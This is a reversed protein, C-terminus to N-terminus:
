LGWEYSVELGVVRPESYISSQIYTQNWQNSNSIRYEKDALNSGYLQASFRSGFIADWRVSANWLGYSPLWAGPESEPVTTPSSYQRDTWAYTLSAELTGKAEDIPLLYRGSLSFQHEPTTLFPVCSLELTGRDVEEGTCDRQPTAGAFDLNFEDYEAETYGYSGVFTFRESFRVTLDLEVGVVSAKGANFNAQGIQPAPSPNDPDVFTDPASRQVDTYDTYYLASNLRVPRGAIEFNAKQGLEYNTVFESDFTFHAPNVAITSIGGTKYGRSVKGYVLHNGFQYDLGATWTTASDKFEADDFSSGGIPQGSSRLQFSASGTTKDRTRRVGLTLSLGALPRYLHGLDYTGQAFPAFSELTQEYGANADIFLLSKGIILGESETKEYYGGIVFSLAQDFALGQLQLEETITHLDAEKVTEPNIFENFAARSGDLDWRFSHDMTSYSAINILTLNDTLEFSFKDLVTISELIDNPDGSLQVRRNGRAAQEDLIDQGCNESPAFQNILLCGPQAVQTLDVGPIIQTLGGAGIAGPIARNFGERNIREIVTGTGHSDSDSYNAMLYNEIRGTPRWLLGLRAVLYSEDDYDKGSVVDETFGDRKSVKGGVRALLTDSVLPVNLVAEYTEGSLSEGGRGELSVAGARLSVSFRDEPKHPELLLAGGTTNRGFLTGQSGKLIQINSLDFFKGEGGQYASIPDSPLPVEGLYIIVGPSAGFQTGQGRITPSENNRMQSNTGVVLSPVKGNLDTPSNIQERRLDDGSMASIAVPVDQLNEQTRRATVLVEEIVMKDSVAANNAAPDGADRATAAPLGVIGASALLVGYLVHRNM